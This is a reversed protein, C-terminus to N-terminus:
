GGGRLRKAEMQTIYKTVFEPGRTRALHEFDAPNLKEYVQLAPDVQTGVAQKVTTLAEKSASRMLNLTRM